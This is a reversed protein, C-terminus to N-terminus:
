LSWEVTVIVAPAPLPRGDGSRHESARGAVTRRVVILVATAANGACFYAPFLLLERDGSPVALAALL